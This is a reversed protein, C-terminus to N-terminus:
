GGFRKLIELVATEDAPLPGEIGARGNTIVLWPTRTRPRAFGERWFPPATEAEMGEWYIRLADKGAARGHDRLYQRIRPSALVDRQDQPLEDREKVNEVILMAVPGVVPPPPEVKGPVLPTACGALCLLFFVRYRM